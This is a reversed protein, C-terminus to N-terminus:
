NGYRELVDRCLRAAGERGRGSIRADAYRSALGIAYSAASRRARVPEGDNDFMFAEPMHPNTGPMRRVFVRREPHELLAGVPDDQVVYNMGRRRLKLTENENLAGAAFGQGNFAAARAEPNQSVALAALANHGGKSHGTFIVRGSTLEDALTRISELQVSGSFPECINDVWDVYSEACGDPSESGRMAVITEGENRIVYAAFGDTANRNIYGTIVGESATLERAADRAPANLRRCKLVGAADMRLVSEAFAAVPISGGRRILEEYLPPLDVYAMWSLILLYRTKM